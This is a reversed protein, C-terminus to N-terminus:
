FFKRAFLYYSGASASAYFYDRVSKSLVFASLLRAMSNYNKVTFVGPLSLIAGTEIAVAPIGISLPETLSFPECETPSLSLSLPNQLQSIMEMIESTRLGSVIKISSRIKKNKIRNIDNLGFQNNSANPVYVNFVISFEGELQGIAKILLKAVYRLNHMGKQRSMRAIIIINLINQLKINASITQKKPKFIETSSFNPNIKIKQPYNKLATNLDDFRSSYTAMAICYLGDSKQLISPILFYKYILNGFFSLLLRPNDRALRISCFTGHSMIFIKKGVLDKKAVLFLLDTFPTHWCYFYLDGKSKLIWEYASLFDGQYFTSLRHNGKVPVYYFSINPYTRRAEDLGSESSTIFNIATYKKFLLILDNQLATGIGHAELPLAASFISANNSM